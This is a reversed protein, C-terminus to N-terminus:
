KREPQESVSAPCGRRKRAEAQGYLRINEMDIQREIDNLQEELRTIKASKEGNAVARNIMATLRIKKAYLSELRNM